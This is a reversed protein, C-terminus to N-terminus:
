LYKNIHSFKFRLETEIWDAAPHNRVSLDARNKCSIIAVYNPHMRPEFSWKRSLYVIFVDHTTQLLTSLQYYAGGFINGAAIVSSSATLIKDAYVIIKMPM